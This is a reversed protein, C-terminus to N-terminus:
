AWNVDFEWYPIIHNVLCLKRYQPLQKEALKDDAEFRNYFEHRFQDFLMDARKFIINRVDDRGYNEDEYKATFFPDVLLDVLIFRIVIPLSNDFGIIQNDLFTYFGPTSIHTYFNEKLGYIYLQNIKKNPLTYLKCNDIFTTTEVLNATDVTSCEEIKKRTIYQRLKMTDHAKILKLIAAKRDLSLNMKRVPLPKPEGECFSWTMHGSKDKEYHCTDNRLYRKKTDIFLFSFWNDISKIATDQNDDLFCGAKLHLTNNVTIAKNHQVPIHEHGSLFVDSNALIKDLNYPSSDVRADKTYQENWELWNLPHHMCTIIAYDNYDKLVHDFDKTPILNLGAVQRNYESINDKTKLINMLSEYIGSAGQPIKDSLKPKDKLLPDPFDDSLGQFFKEFKKATPVDRDMWVAYEKIKTQFDPEFIKQSALLENFNDGISYWASNLLFIIVRRKKDVVYGHLRNDVYESYIKKSGGDTLVFFPRYKEFNPDEIMKKIFSTYDRFLDKFLAKKDWLYSLRQKYEKTSPDIYNLYERLFNTSSWNVDHNGPITLILPLPLSFREKLRLFEDMLKKLMLEFFTNYDDEVGRMALDGTLFVFDIPNEETHQKATEKVFGEIYTDLARNLPSEKYRGLFHVDSVWCIKVLNDSIM